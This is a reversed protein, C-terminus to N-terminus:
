CAPQPPPPALSFSGDANQHWFHSSGICYWIANNPGMRWTGGEPLDAFSEIWEPFSGQRPPSLRPREAPAPSRPAPARPRPLSFLGSSAAPARGHSPQSAASAPPASFGEARYRAAREIELEATLESIRFHLSPLQETASRLSAIEAEADALSRSLEGLRRQTQALSSAASEAQGRAAEAAALASRESAAAAAARSPTLPTQSFHRFPAGRLAQRLSALSEQSTALQSGSSPSPAASRPQHARLLEEVSVAATEV